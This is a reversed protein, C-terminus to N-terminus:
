VPEGYLAWTNSATIRVDLFRGILSTDGKLRVLRNGETRSSLPFEADGSEGDALVRVIKGVYGAHIDASHRNQVELLCDFWRQKEERSAPDPLEAARTGPRPSYIFTFLADFGAEEVLTVTDMAEAETEGPFGIIVDSTLVLGPMVSRARRILELYKERTYRRNMEGLVRDNGSQFPLHLQKAVHRCKAMVDFLRPTADKPHSSMFRIWYDGPIQDIDELLDPFHYGMDLDNGYSNVNQGLLTIDKYGAEVLERVEALVAAPERSRERGRVYPVICYSCFNKTEYGQWLLEPFRWLAQPGFVLDVHRYSQRVREAVREEQAMCGCLVIIQEPNEKKSHTLIGLNGFVRQEAHERIACTNLLVLDAEGADETFAFGMAELMGMLRQGDAVNQQCGFTEVRARPHAGRAAFMARIRDQFDRQRAIEGTPVM